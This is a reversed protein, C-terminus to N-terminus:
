GVQLRRLGGLTMVPMRYCARSRSFVVRGSPLSKVNALLNMCVALAVSELFCVFITLSRFSCAVPSDLLRM